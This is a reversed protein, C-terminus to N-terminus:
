DSNTNFLKEGDIDGKTFVESYRHLNVVALWEKVECFSWVKEIKYNFESFRRQKNEICANQQCEDQLRNIVFLNKCQSHVAKFCSQCSYGVSGSGWIYDSCFSCLVPTVFFTPVFLKHQNSM